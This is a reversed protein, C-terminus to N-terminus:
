GGVRRAVIATVQKGVRAILLAASQSGALNLQRRTLAPDLEVGRKKIELQGVDLSRLLEKVPKVRFPLVELVVFCALAPDRIPREGTWYAVRPAIAVLAHEAALQGGLKAALVAADPEFVYSGIAGALPPELDDVGVISRAAASAGLVTARRKGADRALGGFWAVLQRCQGGRSIWELEARQPWGDPMQAAPALKIAANPNQELLRAIADSRPEHLEVRTTRRGSPRRDPDIHWAASEAVDLREVDRNCVEPCRSGSDPEQPGGLVVRANAAALTTMLPDRDFGTATGRRSLALLDGGIGCCLDFIPQGPSFREAKHAAVWQDTSQELARPTFFMRGAASFKQSARKRLEVQELVLHTRAPSLEKRM